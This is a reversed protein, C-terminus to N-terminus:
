NVNFGIYFGTYRKIPKAEVDLIRLWCCRKGTESFTPISCPSLSSQKSQFVTVLGWAQCKM